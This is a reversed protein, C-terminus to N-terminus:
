MKSTWLRTIGGAGDAGPPADAARADFLDHLYAWLYKARVRTLWSIGENVGSVILACLFFVVALAVASEFYDSDIVMDLRGNRIAAVYRGM